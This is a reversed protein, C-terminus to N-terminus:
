ETDFQALVSINLGPFQELSPHDFEIATLVRYPAFCTNSLNKYDVRDYSAELEKNTMTISARKRYLAGAHFNGVKTFLSFRASDFLSDAIFGSPDSYPIRGIRIDANGPSFSYDTRTLEPILAFTDTMYNIAASIYLEGTETLMTFRPILIGSIDSNNRESGSDFANFETNQNYVLGFDLARM